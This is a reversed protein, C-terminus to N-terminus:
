FILKRKLALESWANRRINQESRFSHLSYHGSCQFIAFIAALIRLEKPCDLFPHSGERRPSKSATEGINVAYRGEDRVESKLSRFADHAM